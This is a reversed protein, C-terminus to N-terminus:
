WKEGETGEQVGELSAERGGVRSPIKDQWLRNLVSLLSIIEMPCYLFQLESLNLGSSYEIAPNLGSGREGKGLLKERYWDCGQECCFLTKLAQSVFPM